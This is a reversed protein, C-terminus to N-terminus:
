LWPGQKVLVAVVVLVDNLFAVERKQLEKAIIGIQKVQFISAFEGPVLNTHVVDFDPFVSFSSKVTM